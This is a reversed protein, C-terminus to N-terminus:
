HIYMCVLPEVESKFNHVIRSNKKTQQIQTYQATHVHMTCQM